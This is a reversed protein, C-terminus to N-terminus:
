FNANNSILAVSGNASVSKGQFGKAYVDYVFVGPQIKGDKYTGDWQKHIDKTEFVLEGWRTFVTLEYSAIGNGVAGFKDNLGDGNPTFASPVYIQIPPHVEVINSESIISADANSVATVRYNVRATNSETADQALGSLELLLLATVIVAIRMLDM